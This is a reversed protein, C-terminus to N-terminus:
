KMKLNKAHVKNDRLEATISFKVFEFDPVCYKSINVQNIQAEQTEMCDYILNFGINITITHSKGGCHDELGM